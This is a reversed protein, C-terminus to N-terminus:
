AGIRQEPIILHAADLKDQTFFVNKRKACKLQCPVSQVCQCRMLPMTQNNCASAKVLHQLSFSSLKRQFM